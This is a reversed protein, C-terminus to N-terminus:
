ENFGIFNSPVRQLIRLDVNGEANRVRCADAALSDIEEDFSVGTRRLIRHTWKADDARCVGTQVLHLRDNEGVGLRQKESAFFAALEDETLRVAGGACRGLM